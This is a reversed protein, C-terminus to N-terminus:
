QSYDHLALYAARELAVKRVWEEVEGRRDGTVQEILHRQEVTLEIVVEKAMQPVGDELPPFMELMRRQCEVSSVGEARLGERYVLAAHWRGERELRERAEERSEKRHTATAM